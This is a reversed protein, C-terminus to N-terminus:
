IFIDKSTYFACNTIITRRGGLLRFWWDLVFSNSPMSTTVFNGAFAVWYLLVDMRGLEIPGEMTGSRIVDRGSSVERDYDSNLREGRRQGPINMDVQRLLSPDSHEQYCVRFPLLLGPAAAVRNVEGIDQGEEAIGWGHGRRTGGRGWERSKWGICPPAASLCNARPLNPPPHPRLQHVEDPEDSSSTPAPPRRTARPADGVSPVCRSKTALPLRRAARRRYGRHNRRDQTSQITESFVQHQIM